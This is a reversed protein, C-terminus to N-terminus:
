CFVFAILLTWRPFLFSHSVSASVVPLQCSAVFSKSFSKHCMWRIVVIGASHLLASCLLEMTASSVLFVNVALRCFALGLSIVITFTQATRTNFLVYTHTPTHTVNIVCAMLTLQFPISNSSPLLWVPKWDKRRNSFGKKRAICRMLRLLM